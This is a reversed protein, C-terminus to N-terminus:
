AQPGFVPLFPNSSPVPPPPPPSVSVMSPSPPPPPFPPPPPPSFISVKPPPPSFVKPPPPPPSKTIMPPPPSKAIKPPPPPPSKIIKPPPPPPSKAIKPPPPPPSKIIKPPPPPPSKTIKPPPNFARCNKRVEGSKGVLVQTNGLKILANAFAQQFVKPNSSFNTVIRSTSRDSELLQDIKLIGKKLKLQKYFSNDVVLSTSQDLFVPSGGNASCTKKLSGFLKKDMSGDDRSLRDGQIFSCHTIGVTHGGLLTVMENVNFGKSQFTQIAQPVTISPGPLNVQLPDSVLGDRRGTPISYSLGGALAVADRTALAIIDACSVTNPCTAELKSKIQDILGYERVSGNAGADKESKKNKTNKSDILLSADCGRVFCDHFYMRLLAATITRDSSFRTRVTDRVITEATPCRAKYFGVQLQASVITSPVPPPNFARCNKRVEGSKGVLVQTNGLKILANAFDQQFDKPNSSFNTVIGATSGDSELLQDIKLIGKKLKLQKYFSNDVVLSTSQDLFVESDGKSSCTKRLSDFLNKDMSGDERSLRDGQIFSCHTIGVTHGGLLTVMESVNFGKSQFTQIAQPVTISPGPLNVQLPDSVLGDRMRLLAATITRDSSFRTRVTDRVITEAAPCRAETNYFGVQLQASVITALHLTFCFFFLFLIKKDMQNVTHKLRVNTNKLDATARDVKADIEDMLPVQRDLEENMDSAMNKLTDLGEAIVDLGQDQRMKRMEYEQKFQSSEETQQFYENDFKGDSDFKIETRSGSARWGGSQKPPAASGDPIANIRDPLALVLDNRAALEEGSLGKVKRVALRQLKPVEELLRAKTRRIEANIAVVSARNKENSATEAKQLATEIDSEVSSYLRAFADDGAVNSDKQKDIDYKDYKKCISDVRTLIDIVSM